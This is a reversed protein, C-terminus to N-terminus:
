KLCPRPFGVSPQGLGEIGPALPLRSGYGPIGANQGSCTSYRPLMELRIVVMERRLIALHQYHSEFVEM